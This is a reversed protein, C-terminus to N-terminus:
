APIVQALLTAREDDTWETSQRSEKDFKVVVATASLCIHDLQTIRQQLMLSSRGVNIASTYVVVDEGFTIEKLYNMELKALATRVHLDATNRYFDVRGAELWPTVATNNIHGLADTESFRPTLTIPM